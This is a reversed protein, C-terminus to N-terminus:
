ERAMGVHRVTMGHCPFLSSDDRIVFSSLLLYVFLLHQGNKTKHLHDIQVMRPRICTNIKILATGVHM